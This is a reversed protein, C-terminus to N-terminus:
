KRPEPNFRDARPGGVRTRVTLRQRQRRRQVLEELADEQEPTLNQLDITM